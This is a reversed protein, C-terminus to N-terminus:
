LPEPMPVKRSGNPRYSRRSYMFVYQIACFEGLWSRQPTLQSGLSFGGLFSELVSVLAEGKWCCSNELCAVQKEM